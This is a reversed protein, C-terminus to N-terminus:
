IAVGDHFVVRDAQDLDHLREILDLGAQGALDHAEQRLVLVRHHGALRNGLDVNSADLGNMVMRLSRMALRPSIATRMMRAARSSPMAVTCTCLLASLSESATRSASSLTSM